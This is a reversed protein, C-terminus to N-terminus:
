RNSLAAREIATRHSVVLEQQEPWFMRPLRDLRCWILQYHHHRDTPRGDKQHTTFLFYHTKKWSTKKLDWRERIGLEGALQLDCLGSEESIERLAAQLPTEQPEVHGKPLIYDRFGDERLLAILVHAGAARAVVGGSSVHGPVGAPKVYWSQDIRLYPERVIDQVVPLQPVFRTSRFVGRLLLALGSLSFLAALSAFVTAAIAGPSPFMRCADVTCGAAVALLAAGAALLLCAVGSRLLEGRTMFSVDMRPGFPRFLLRAWWAGPHRGALARLNIFVALGIVLAFLLQM